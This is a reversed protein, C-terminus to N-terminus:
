SLLKYFFVAAILQQGTSDLAFQPTVGMHVYGMREYLIEAASNKQTDLVLLSRRVARAEDEIAHMLQTAIGQRRVRSHVLVKQVEARHLGNPQTAPVLHVCGVVRDAELAALVIRQQAEAEGAWRDWAAAALELDLPAIFNVSSGGDVADRLLEVFETKHTLIDQASFRRILIM